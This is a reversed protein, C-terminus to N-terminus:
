LRGVLEIGVLGSAQQEISAFAQLKFQELSICWAVLHREEERPGEGPIAISVEQVRHM